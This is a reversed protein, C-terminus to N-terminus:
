RVDQAAHAHLRVAGRGTERRRDADREAREDAPQRRRPGDGGDRRRHWLQRGDRPALRRRPPPERRPVHRRALLVPRDHAELPRHHSGVHHRRPLICRWLCVPQGDRRVNRRDRGAAAARSGLPQRLLYARARHWDYLCLGAAGLARDGGGGGRGTRRAGRGHGARVPVDRASPRRPLEHGRARRPATHVHPHGSRAANALERRPVGGAAGGPRCPQLPAEGGGAGRRAALLARPQVPRDPHAHRDAKRGRRGRQQVQAVRLGLSTSQEILTGLAASNIGSTADGGPTLLRFVASDPGEDRAINQASYSMAASAIHLTTHYFQAGEHACHVLGPILDPRSTESVCPVGALEATTANSCPKPKLVGDVLHFVLRGERSGGHMLTGTHSNLANRPASAPAGNTAECTGVSGNGTTGCPTLGHVLIPPARSQLPDSAALQLLTDYHCVLSYEESVDDYSLLQSMWSNQFHNALRETIPYSPDERRLDIGEGGNYFGEVYETFDGVTPTIKVALSIDAAAVTPDFFQQAFDLNLFSPGTVGTIFENILNNLGARAPVTPYLFSQVLSASNLSRSLLALVTDPLRQHREGPPLLPSPIVANASAGDGPTLLYPRSMIYLGDDQRGSPIGGLGPVLDLLTSWLRRDQLATMHQICDGFLDLNKLDTLLSPDAPLKGKTFPECYDLFAQLPDVVLARVCPLHIGIEPVRRTRVSRCLANIARTENSAGAAAGATCTEICSEM